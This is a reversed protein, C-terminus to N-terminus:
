YISLGRGIPVLVMAMLDDFECGMGMPAYDNVIPGNDGGGGVVM